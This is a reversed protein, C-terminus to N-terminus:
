PSPALSEISHWLPSMDLHSVLPQVGLQVRIKEFERSFSLLYAMHIVALTWETLASM